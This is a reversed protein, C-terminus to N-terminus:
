ILVRAPFLVLYLTSPEIFKNVHLFDVPELTHMPLCVTGLLCFPEQFHVCVCAVSVVEM